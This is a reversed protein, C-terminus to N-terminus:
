CLARRRQPLPPFYTQKKVYLADVNLFRLFILKNRLISRTWMLFGLWFPDRGECLGGRLSALPPFLRGKKM